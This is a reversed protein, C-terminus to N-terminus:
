GPAGGARNAQEILRLLRDGRELSEDLEFVLTPLFRLQVRTGLEHRFYSTAHTLATMTDQKEQDSGLVSVYLRAHRLDASIKVETVSAFGIRPDNTSRLLLDSIEERILDAVQEQRRSVVDSSSKSGAL